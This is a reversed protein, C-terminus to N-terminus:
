EERLSVTCGEVHGRERGCVLAVSLPRRASFVSVTLSGTDVVTFLWHEKPLVPRPHSPSPDFIWKPGAGIREHPDRECFPTSSPDYTLRGENNGFVLTELESALLVDEFGVLRGGYLRRVANPAGLSLLFAAIIAVCGLFILGVDNASNDRICPDDSNAPCSAGSRLVIEAVFERLGYSRKYKMQPFAKWRISVGRCSDLILTQDDYGVGAVQCLPEIDWLQTHYHDPETLALFNNSETSTDGSDLSASSSAIATMPLLFSALARFLTDSSDLDIRYHLLGELAYAIDGNSFSGNQRRHALVELAITFLEFLGLTLVSSYHEALLRGGARGGELADGDDWVHDAMGLKSVTMSETPYFFRIEQRRALLAEPFTWMRAGWELIKQRSLDPLLVFVHEAGRIVDCMRHVDATHLEEEVDAACCRFDIWYAKMGVEQTKRQALEEVTRQAVAAQSPSVTASPPFYFHSATFSIFAYPIASTDSSIQWKDNHLVMLLRPRLLRVKSSLTTWKDGSNVSGNRAKHGTGPRADLRNRAHKPYDWTYNPFETYSEDFEADDWVKELPLSLLVM